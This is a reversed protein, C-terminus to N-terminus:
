FEVNILGASKPVDFAFTLNENPSESMSTQINASSLIIVLIMLGNIIILAKNRSLKLDRLRTIEKKKLKSNIIIIRM